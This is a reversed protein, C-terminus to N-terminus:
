KVVVKKGKIINIGKKPVALRQGSLNYIPTTGEAGVMVEDVGTTKGNISVVYAKEQATEPLKGLYNTIKGCVVVDDGVRLLLDQGAYKTNNLYLARYIYFQDKETGDSSIYFTADGYQTNFQEKIYVVMGRIYYDKQSVENSSLTWGYANAEESTFPNNETGANTDSPGGEVINKFKSWGVANQYKSLSGVPVYLTANSYVEDRFANESIATPNANKSQIVALECSSFAGDAIEIVNKGLVLTSLDYLMFASKEIKEVGDPIEIDSADGSFAYEGIIKVSSPIKNPMSGAILKNTATEILCNSNDRSDYYPNDPSVTVKLKPCFLFSAEDIRKLGKGITVNTLSECSYFCYDRIVEVDDPITISKIGSNHFVYRGISTVSNPIITSNCGAVLTNTATEIIANCNNRSDFIKNDSSVKISELNDCGEFNSSWGILEVSEPINIGVLGTCNTFAGNSLSKTGAKVDITTNDPMTGKYMYLMKGIYLLGDPQNDLWPTGIFTNNEAAEVQSLGTIYALSSCNYFTGYGLKKVGDGLSASTLSTCGEFVYQEIETVSNPVIVQTIGKCNQFSYGWIKVVRLGEVEEPITITGKYNPDIAPNSVYCTGDSYGYFSIDVGEISKATFKGTPLPKNVTISCTAQMVTQKSHTCTIVASGEGKATVMGKNDVTAVSSNSSSWIVEKYTANDPTITVEIKQSEGVKLETSVPNLKIRDVPQIVHITYVTEVEYTIGSYMGVWKAKYTLKAKTNAKVGKVWCGEHDKKTITINDNSATWSWSLVIDQNGINNPFYNTYDIALDVEGMDEAKGSMPFIVMIAVLTYFCRLLQSQKM